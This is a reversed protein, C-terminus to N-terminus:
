SNKLLSKTLMEVLSPDQALFAQVVEPNDKILQALKQDDDQALPLVRVFEHVKKQLHHPLNPVLWKLAALLTIPAGISMAYVMASEKTDFRQGICKQAIEVVAEGSKECIFNKIKDKALWDTGFLKQLFGTKPLFQTRLDNYAKKLVDHMQDLLVLYEPVGFVMKKFFCKEEHTKLLSIGYLADYVEYMVDVPSHKEISFYLELSTIYKRLYSKFVTSRYLNRFRIDSIVYRHAVYSEAKESNLIINPAILFSSISEKLELLNFIISDFIDCLLSDDMSTKEFDVLEIISIIESAKQQLIVKNSDNFACFVTSVLLHYKKLINKQDRTMTIAFVQDLLSGSWWRKPSSVQYYPELLKYSLPQAKGCFIHFKKHNDISNWAKKLSSTLEELARLIIEHVGEIEYCDKDFAMSVSTVYVLIDNVSEVFGKIVQVMREIMLESDKRDQGDVSRAVDLWTRLDICISKLFISVREHNIRKDICIIEASCLINIIENIDSEIQTVDSYINKFKYGAESNGSDQQKCSYSHYIDSESQSDVACLFSNELNLFLFLILIFIRNM